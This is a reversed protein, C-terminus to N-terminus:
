SRADVSLDSVSAQISLDLHPLFMAARSQDRHGATSLTGPLRLPAHTNLSVRLSTAVTKSFRSDPALMPITRRSAPAFEPLARIQRGCGRRAASEQQHLQRPRHANEKIVASWAANGRRKRVVVNRLRYLAAPVPNRVALQESHGLGFSARLM